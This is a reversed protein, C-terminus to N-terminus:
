LLNVEGFIEPLQEQLEQQLPCMVERMQPHASKHTRLKFIHRWERLNATVILETKLSNPLVTRAQEPTWGRQLLTFYKIESTLIASAWWVDCFDDDKTFSNCTYTDPQLSVWPPIIYTIHNGQKVYRTSEQSFSCLRHRIIEYGIGRDITFRVTLSEHEIVSEHNRSLIMKCFKSASEDTIKDQSQYCARGYRELNKLIANADIPTLIDYYPKILKM